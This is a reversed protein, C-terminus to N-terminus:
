ARLVGVGARRPGGSGAAEAVILRTALRVLEARGAPSPLRADILDSMCQRTRMSGPLRKSM